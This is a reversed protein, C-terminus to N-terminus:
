FLHIIFPVAITILWYIGGALLATAPITIVWALAIDGAVKWRVKSIREAAGVGMISTSVVQTTSVPGGVLSAILIVLASSLQSALGHV